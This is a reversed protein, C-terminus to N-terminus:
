PSSLSLISTQIIISIRSMSCLKDISFVMNGGSSAQWLPSQLRCKRHGGPETRLVYRSTPMQNYKNLAIRSSSTGLGCSCFAHEYSDSLLLASTVPLSSKVYSEICRVEVVVRWITGIDSACTSCTGYTWGTLYIYSRPM